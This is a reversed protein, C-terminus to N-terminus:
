IPNSKAQRKTVFDQYNFLRELQFYFSALSSLKNLM